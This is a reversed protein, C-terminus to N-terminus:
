RGDFFLADREFDIFFGMKYKPYQFAIRQYYKLALNRTEKKIHLLIPIRITATLKAGIKRKNKQNFNVKIIRPGPILLKWIMVRLEVPLKDFCHFETLPQNTDTQTDTNTSSDDSQNIDTNTDPPSIDKDESAPQPHSDPTPSNETAVAKTDGAGCAVPAELKLRKPLPRRAM